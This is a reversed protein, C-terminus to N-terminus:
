DVVQGIHLCLKINGLGAVVDIAGGIEYRGSYVPADSLRLILPPQLNFSIIIDQKLLDHINHSSLIFINLLSPSLPSGPINHAM